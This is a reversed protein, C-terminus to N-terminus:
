EKKSFAAIKYSVGFQISSNTFMENPLDESINLLGKVYRASMGLGFPFEYGMGGALGFDIKKFNNKELGPREIEQNGSFPFGLANTSYNVDIIIEGKASLLYAIYPGGFLMFGGKSRYKAFVPLELYTLSQKYEYDGDVDAFFGAFEGEFEFNDKFKVGKVSYMLEPQIYFNENVKIEAFLGANFGGKFKPKLDLDINFAALDFGVFNQLLDDWDGSIQSLNYDAKIGVSVQSHALTFGSILLLLLVKKM